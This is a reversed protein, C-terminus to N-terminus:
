AQRTGWRRAALAQGPSLPIVNSPAPREGRQGGAGVVFLGAAKLAELLIVILWLTAPDAAKVGAAAPPSPLAAKAAVAEIRRRELRAIEAARQAGLEATRAPGIPRGAEDSLPIAPISALATETRDIEAQAAEIARVPALREAEVLEFARHGSWGNFCIVGALLPVGLAIRAWEGSRVAGSLRILLTAGLVECSAALAVTVIRAPGTTAESWAWCNFLGSAAVVVAVALM